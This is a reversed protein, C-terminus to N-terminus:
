RFKKAKIALLKAAIRMAEERQEPTLKLLSDGLRKLREEPSTKSPPTTPTM